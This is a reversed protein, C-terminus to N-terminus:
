CSHWLPVTIPDVSTGSGTNFTIKYQKPTESIVAFYTVEKTVASLSVVEGGLTLSWGVLAKTTKEDSKPSYSYAPFKGKKLM